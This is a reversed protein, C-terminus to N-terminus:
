GWSIARSLVVALITATAVVAIVGIAESVVLSTTTAREVLVCFVAILFLITWLRRASPWAHAVHGWRVRVVTVALGVLIGSRNMRVLMGVFCHGGARILVALGRVRARQVAGVVLQM